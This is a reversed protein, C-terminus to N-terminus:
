TKNSQSIGLVIYIKSRIFLSVNSATKFIKINKITCNIGAGRGRDVNHSMTNNSFYSNEFKIFETINVFYMKRM